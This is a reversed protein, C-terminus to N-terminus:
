FRRKYSQCRQKWGPLWRQEGREPPSNAVRKTLVRQAADSFGAPTPECMDALVQALGWGQGHYRESPNIGDGKFNVYDIMAFMGEPSQTLADYNARVRAGGASALKPVTGHLRAIIFETQERVTSSLLRRLDQQQPSNVDRKFEARTNWPCAKAKMLWAPLSVGSRALWQIMPPFSEEFPGRKGAPYWIFHGIGLSAFQEGSNWSTLGSVTGACENQWIRQGIRLTTSANAPAQTQM